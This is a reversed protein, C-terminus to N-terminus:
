FCKSLIEVGAEVAVVGNDVVAVDHVVHGPHITDDYFMLSRRLTLILVFSFSLQFTLITQWFIIFTVIFYQYAM